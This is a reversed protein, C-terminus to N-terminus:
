EHSRLAIIIALLIEKKLHLYHKAEVSAYSSVELLYFVWALLFSGSLAELIGAILYAQKLNFGSPVEIIFAGWVLV